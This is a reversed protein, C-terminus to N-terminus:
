YEITITKTKLYENLAEQGLDKGFGSKKFGGFPAAVDTKNYTNVFVTGAEVKEAFRLARSIDKTIVGAALGYETSNARAIIRDLDKSSFTSIVMIPGFSEERALFMEDKVDTFITPQFYLGPCDLKKGGYVLRAGEEVGKKTFEILKELHAKHNQPGHATGRDLPNGITLKKTEEVVKNLFADHITEEVFIRGAAICNEGKNFFVSSMAVRVAQQLDTDEFIVLPSKGGLELSVKKLNSDACSRMIVQGIETSGTFGLKRVLPHNALANGTVSGSGTVINIVGQPIGAKVSLEAFKLATLPSTQAPKMVVTNGAALCAAMKWSLMMLPYNWPTILACVGIPEKKTITLNRNPRAHTIPITSGQIKDCWGAFYRWTEISMGVHTKLALTYVAGSDISEISALEEKHEEMLDALKFLIVGRERASIKSWEGEEFARKAAIVAHDVDEPSGSEVSCILSEDHPNITDIPKGKGNIFQGDIFLQRPFKLDKNNARLEVADYRVGLQVSDGRSKLIMVRAFEIFVPAMFVDTNQLSVGLSDKVEEVLRVVDMSGAGCAFFDTEDDVEMKLISQWINRVTGVNSAEEQTFEINVSANSIKGYMSANITKNGIKLRQVNVFNNEAVKIVIGGEHVIGIHGDIDITDGVPLKQDWITSGYLRVEEGNILTWAGIASDLGRIFNHVEQASKKSLDLRQLEPKNLMPDYSAGDETQPIMPAIGDSILNVAEAVAKIGEPYLFNNYLSDLTDNPNVPCSKQILIPGTDLGDDAWFISLGAVKDGSILTWSIASAGRHKPLISPHYAISRHKPHNIVEMPIFQTCFPLVNLDVDIKKYLELIEPLPQGKSRWAKIKFVPVDDEKAKAALPDERNGKDPITFVGTIFHGDNKLSKYVEVAFNSQGIIAVKLRSM